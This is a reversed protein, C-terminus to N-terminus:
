AVVCFIERHICISVLAHRGIQGCSTSLSSSRGPSRSRKLRWVDLHLLHGWESLPRDTPCPPLSERTARVLWWSSARFHGHHESRLSSRGVSQRTRVVKITPVLHSPLIGRCLWSPSDGVWRVDGYGVQCEVSQGCGHAHIDVLAIIWQGAWCAVGIGVENPSCKSGTLSM